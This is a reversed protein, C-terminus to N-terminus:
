RSLAADAAPWQRAARRVAGGGALSPAGKKTFLVFAVDQLWGHRQARISHQSFTSDKLFSDVFGSAATFEGYGPRGRSLCLEEDLFPLSSRERLHDHRPAGWPRWCGVGRGGWGEIVDLTPHAALPHAPVTQSGAM